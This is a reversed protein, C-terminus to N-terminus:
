QECLEVTLSQWTPFVVSKQETTGVAVRTGVALEVALGVTWGEGEVVELVTVVDPVVFVVTVGVECGTRFDVKSAALKM